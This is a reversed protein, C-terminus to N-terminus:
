LKAATETLVLVTERRLPSGPDPCSSLLATPPACCLSSLACQVMALSIWARNAVDRKRGPTRARAGGRCPMGTAHTYESLM